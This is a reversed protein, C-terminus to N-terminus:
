PWEHGHDTDRDHRIAEVPDPATGRARTRERIDESFRLLAAKDERTADALIDRVTQELSRDSERAKEKLQEIVRDDLNRVIIQGM